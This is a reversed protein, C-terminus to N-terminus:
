TLLHKYKTIMKRAGEVNYDSEDELSQYSKLLDVIETHLWDVLAQMAEEETQYRKQIVDNKMEAMYGNHLIYWYPERGYSYRKIVEFHMDRDKHHDISVIECWVKTNELLSAEIATKM